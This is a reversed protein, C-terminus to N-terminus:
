SQSVLTYVGRALWPVHLFFALVHHLETAGCFAVNRIIGSRDKHGYLSDGM